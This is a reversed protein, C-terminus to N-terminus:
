PTVTIELDDYDLDCDQPGSVTRVGIVIAAAQTATPQQPVITTAGQTADISFSIGGDARLDADLDMTHFVLGLNAAVSSYVNGSPTEIGYQLAGTERRVIVQIGAAPFQLAFMDVPTSLGIGTACTLGGRVQMRAHYHLPGMMSLAADITAQSAFTGDDLHARMFRPPDTDVGISAGNLITPQARFGDDTLGNNWRACFITRPDTCPPVGGDGARGDDVPGGGDDTADITDTDDSADGHVPSDLGFVLNCGGLVATSAVVIIPLGV